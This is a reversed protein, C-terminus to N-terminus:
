KSFSFTLYNKWNSYSTDESRNNILAFLRELFAFAIYPTSLDNRNELWPIQAQASLVAVGNIRGIKKSGNTVTNVPKWQIELLAKLFVMVSSSTILVSNIVQWRHNGAGMSGAGLAMGYYNVTETVHRLFELGTVWFNQLSIKDPFHWYIETNLACALSM